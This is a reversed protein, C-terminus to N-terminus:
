APKLKGIRQKIGNKIIADSFNQAIKIYKQGQLPQYDDKIGLPDLHRQKKAKIM